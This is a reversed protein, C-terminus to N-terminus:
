YPIKLQEGAEDDETEGDWQAAARSLAGGRRDNRRTHSLQLGGKM